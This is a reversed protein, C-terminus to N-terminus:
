LASYSPTLSNLVLLSSATSSPSWLDGRKFVESLHAALCHLLVQVRQQCTEVGGRNPSSNLPISPPPWSSSSFSSAPLVCLIRNNNKRMTRSTSRDTGGKARSSSVYHLCFNTTLKSGSSALQVYIRTTYAYFLPQNLLPSALWDALEEFISGHSILSM